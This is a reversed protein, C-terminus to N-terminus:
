IFPKYRNCFTISCNSWNICYPMADNLNFMTVEFIKPSSGWQYKRLNTGSTPTFDM